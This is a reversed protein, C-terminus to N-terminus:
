ARRWRRRRTPSCSSPGRRAARRPSRASYLDSDWDTNRQSLCFSNKSTSPTIHKLLRGKEARKPAKNRAVFSWLYPSPGSCNALVSSVVQLPTKGDAKTMSAFLPMPDRKWSTIDLPTRTRSLISHRGSYGGGQYILLYESTAPRYIARPDAGDTQLSRNPGDHLLDALTAKPYVLGESDLAKVFGIANYVSTGPAAITRFFLGGGTHNNPLPLWAPNLIEPSFSTAPYKLLPAGTLSRNIVTVKYPSLSSSRSRATVLVATSMLSLVVSTAVIM